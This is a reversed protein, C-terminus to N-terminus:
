GGTKIKTVAALTQNVHDDPNLNSYSLVIKHNKGIVYSDRGSLTKDKFVLTSAYLKAISGDTDAAIPFKGSCYRTDKSFEGVRDVNGATVGILTAGEAKFKDASEAFLHAEIQCGQTFAAPFFYVVVPGKKLAKDLDFDYKDGGLYATAKFEPATAGQELAAHAGVAALGSMAVAAASALALVRAKM